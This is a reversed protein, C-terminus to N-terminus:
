HRSEHEMRGTLVGVELNVIQIVRDQLDSFYIDQPRGLMVLSDLLTNM